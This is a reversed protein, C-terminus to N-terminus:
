EVTESIDVKQQIGTGSVTIEQPSGVVSDTISIVARRTGTAKPTFSVVVTCGAGPALSLGCSTAVGFDGPDTGGQAVGM